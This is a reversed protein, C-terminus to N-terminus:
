STAHIALTGRRLPLNGARELEGAPDIRRPMDAHRDARVGILHQGLQATRSLTNGFQAGALHHGSLRNIIEQSDAM